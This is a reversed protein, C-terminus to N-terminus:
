KKLFDKKVFVEDPLDLLVKKKEAMNLGKTGTNYKKNKEYFEDITCVIKAPNGAVVYGSPISKTVVSCGAVLVNDGIVVGPMITSGAGVYVRNGITIRGFFDFNPCKYRCVHAGGHTHFKVGETIQCDDGISVLYAETPWCNKDAIFVNKGVVVGKYIAFRIPSLIVKFFREKLRNFNM